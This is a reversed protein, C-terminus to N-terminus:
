VAGSPKGNFGKVENVAYVCRRSRDIALFSPNDAKFSAVCRLNGSVEDMLCRYIGESKGSTYTGVYLHREQTHPLSWAPRRFPLAVIAAAASTKLFERRNWKENTM